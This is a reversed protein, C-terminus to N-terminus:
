TSPSYDLWSKCTSINLFNSYFEGSSTFVQPTGVASPTAPKPTVSVDRCVTSVYEQSKKEPHAADAQKM